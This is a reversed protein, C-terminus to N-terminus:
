RAPTTTAPRSRTSAPCAAVGHRPVNSSTTTGDGLEGTANNGWCKVTGGTLLACTHDYGASVQAVGSTLGTVHVPKLRDSRSGDGVEGHKNQGWCKVAGGTTLACTHDWGASIQKIGSSLGFVDVPHKRTSRTGDGLQGNGNYGWCVIRM